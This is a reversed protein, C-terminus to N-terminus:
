TVNPRGDEPPAMKRVLERVEEELRLLEAELQAQRRWLLIIYLFVALFIISYAAFLYSLHNM